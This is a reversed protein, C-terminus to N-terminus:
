RIPAIFAAGGNNGGNNRFQNFTATGLLTVGLVREVPALLKALFNDTLILPDPGVYVRDGPFLQYNTTTAGGETIARWDVPLIQLCENDAPAPRAVWIKKKSAVQSLGQVNAIADLVTEKGTIPLRYITQGFGAGDAIVYYVKSNYASVDVNIEPDLVYQSLHREVAVKIQPLTLGAVYVCGYTGLNITGDMRVLHLGRVQQLARFEALGVAVQPEKLVRGIQKRIAAEVEAMTMGAVYVVGYSYGLSITGDNGVTYIGEIPQNPLPEAVRLLLRDLPGVVYPPKPILRVAELLLIDPPEVRYPPLSRMALETPAPAHLPAHHLPGPGAMVPVGPVPGNTVMPGTPPTPMVGPPTGMGTPDTGMPMPATGMPLPAAPPAVYTVQQSTAAPPTPPPVYSAPHVATSAPEAPRSKIVTPETNGGIQISVCGVSVLLCLGLGAWGLRRLGKWNGAM